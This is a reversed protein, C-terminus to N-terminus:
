LCRSPCLGTEAMSWLFASVSVGIGIIMPERKLEKIRKQYADTYISVYEPSKGIFAKPNPQSKSIYVLPLPSLCGVSGGILLGCAAEVPFGSTASDTAPGHDPLPPTNLVGIYGGAFMGAFMCMPPLLLGGLMWLNSTDAEADRHAEAIVQQIESVTQQAESVLVPTSVFLMLVVISVVKFKMSKEQPQLKRLRNKAAM